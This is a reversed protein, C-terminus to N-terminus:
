RSWISNPDDSIGILDEPDLGTSKIETISYALLQHQQQLIVVNMTPKLYTQRKMTNGEM